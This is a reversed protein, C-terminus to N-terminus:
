GTATTVATTSTASWRLPERPRTPWSLLPLLEGRNRKITTREGKNLFSRMIFSKAMAATSGKPTSAVGSLSQASGKPTQIDGATLMTSAAATGEGGSHRRQQDVRAVLVSDRNKAGPVFLDCVAADVMGISSTNAAPAPQDNTAAEERGLEEAMHALAAASKTAAAGALTGTKKGRKPLVTM